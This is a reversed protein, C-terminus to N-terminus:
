KCSPYGQSTWHNTDPTGASRCWANTQKIRVIITYAKPPNSTTGIDGSGYRFINPDIATVDIYPSLDTAISAISYNSTAPARDYGDKPYEGHELNYLALAKEIEKVTSLRAASEAKDRATNLSALVVSALTGIIAIVVLLEILTFGKTQSNYLHM